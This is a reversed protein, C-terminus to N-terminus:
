FFLPELSRKILFWLSGIEENTEKIPISFSVTRISRTECNYIDSANVSKSGNTCNLFRSLCGNTFNCAEAEAQLKVLLLVEAQTNIVNKFNYLHYWMVCCM